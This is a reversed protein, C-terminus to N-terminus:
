RGIFVQMKVASRSSSAPSVFFLISIFSFFFFLHQFQQFGTLLIVNRLRRIQFSYSWNTFGFHVQLYYIGPKALGFNKEIKKFILMNRGFCHLSKMSQLRMEQSTMAPSSILCSRDFPEIKWQNWGRFSDSRAPDTIFVSTM